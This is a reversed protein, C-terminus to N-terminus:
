NIRSRVKYFLSAEFVLSGGAETHQSSLCAGGGGPLLAKEPHEKYKRVTPKAKSGININKKKM